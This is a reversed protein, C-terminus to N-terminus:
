LDNLGVRRDGLGSWTLVDVTGCCYKSTLLEALADDERLDLVRVRDARAGVERILVFQDDLIARAFDIVGDWGDMVTGDFLSAHTHWRGFRLSPDTGAEMWFAMGDPINPNPCAIEVLTPSRARPEDGALARRFDRLWPLAAFLRAEFAQAEDSHSDAM